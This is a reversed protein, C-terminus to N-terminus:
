LNNKKVSLVAILQIDSCNVNSFPLCKPKRNKWFLTSTLLDVQLEKDNEIKLRFTWSYILILRYFFSIFAESTLFRDIKIRL